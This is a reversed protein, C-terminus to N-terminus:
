AARRVCRSAAARRLWQELVLMGWVQFVSFCDPLRQVQLYRKMGARDLHGLLQSGSGLLLDDALDLLRDKSWAREPLGFGMKPREIIQRPLYNAALRKLLRKSQFGDHCWDDPLRSAWRALRVDLLPCRVELAFQMSMRDVKALVAGPLYSEVDLMRMRHILPRARDNLHRRWRALLGAAEPHLPGTMPVLTEEPMHLWRGSVYSTGATWIRRWRRVSRVHRWPDRAEALTDSYRRYGGFLEDGGDGSLAVTVHRRTFESLLYVPLCSSDGNPEDLAAAITPLLDVASPDVIMEHHDTGLAEAVQRAAHHESDPADKFGISFTRARVGLEKAMVGVVLSSDIGGSLFAGLPVDAVLRDQVAQVVLCRLESLATAEDVPKKGRERRPEDATFTFHRHPTLVPSRGAPFRVRLLTGPELKCVQRYITRPAHVYQLLLYEQIAIADIDGCIGPVRELARLESAFALVGGAKAYYLPKKGFGDRALVLERCKANWAAFAYMGQLRGVAHVPDGEFLHCLTETDTRTAFHHGQATLD